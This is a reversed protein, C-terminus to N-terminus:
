KVTTYSIYQPVTKKVYLSGAQKTTCGLFFYKAGYHKDAQGRCYMSKFSVTVAGRAVILNLRIIDLM